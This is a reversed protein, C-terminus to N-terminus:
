RWIDSVRRAYSCEVKMNVITLCSTVFPEGHSARQHRWGAPPRPHLHFEQRRRLEGGRAPGDRRARRQDQGGGGGDAARQQDESGQLAGSHAPTQIGASIACLTMKPQTGDWWRIPDCFLVAGSAANAYYMIAYAM